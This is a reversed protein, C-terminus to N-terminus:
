AVYSASIELNEIVKSWGICGITGGSMEELPPRPESNMQTETRVGWALSALELGVPFLDKSDFVKKAFSEASKGLRGLDNSMTTFGEFSLYGRTGDPAKFVVYDGTPPQEVQEQVSEVSDNAFWGFLSNLVKKM